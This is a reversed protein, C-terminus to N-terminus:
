AWQGEVVRDRGALDRTATVAGFGLSVLLESV